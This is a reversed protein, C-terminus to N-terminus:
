SFIPRSNCGLRDDSHPSLHLRETGGSHLRKLFVVAGLVVTRRPEWSRNNGFSSEYIVTDGIAGGPYELRITDGDNNLIPWGVPSVVTGDFDTYYRRFRAVDQALVIYGGAPLILNTTSITRLTQADGIRYQRLNILQGTPNYLEIWETELDYVPDPIFENVIPGTFSSQATAAATSLLLFSFIILIARLITM